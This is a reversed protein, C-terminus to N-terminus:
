DTSQAMLRRILRELAEHDRWRYCWMAQRVAEEVTLRRPPEPTALPHQPTGGDDM